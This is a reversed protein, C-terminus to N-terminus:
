GVKLVTGRNKSGTENTGPPRKVSSGLVPDYAFFINSVASNISGPRYYFLLNSM